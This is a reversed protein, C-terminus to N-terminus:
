HFKHFYNQKNKVFNGSPELFAYLSFTLFYDAMDIILTKKTIKKM